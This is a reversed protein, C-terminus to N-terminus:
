KNSSGYAQRALEMPSGVPVGTGGGGGGLDAKPKFSAIAEALSDLEGASMDKVKDESIGKKVLTSRKEALTADKSTKLEDAATQAATKATELEGKVKDHEEKSIATKLQEELTGVKQTATDLKKGLSEKIGVYQNWAVTEPHKDGAGVLEKDVKQTEEDVNPESM